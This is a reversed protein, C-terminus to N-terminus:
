AVRVAAVVVEEIPRGLSLPRDTVLYLSLNFDLSM